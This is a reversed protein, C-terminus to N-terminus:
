KSFVTLSVKNHEYKVTDSDVMKSKEISVNINNEQLKNFVKFALDKQYDYDIKISKIHDKKSILGLIESENYNTLFVPYWGGLICNDSNCAFSTSIAGSLIAMLLIKKM